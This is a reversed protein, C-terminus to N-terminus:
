LEIILKLLGYIILDFMKNEPFHKKTLNRPKVICLFSYPDYNAHILVDKAINNGYCIM